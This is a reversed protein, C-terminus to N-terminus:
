AVDTVLENYMKAKYFDLENFQTGQAILIIHIIRALFLYQTLM